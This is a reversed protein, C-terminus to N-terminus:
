YSLVPPSVMSVTRTLPRMGNAYVCSVNRAILGYLRDLRERNSRTKITSKFESIVAYADQVVKASVVVVEFRRLRFPIDVEGFNKGREVIFNNGVSAFRSLKSPINRFVQRTRVIYTGVLIVSLQGCRYLYFINTITTSFTSSSNLNTKVPVRSAVVLELPPLDRMSHLVAQTLLSVTRLTTSYRLKRDRDHAGRALPADFAGSLVYIRLGKTSRTVSLRRLSTAAQLGVTYTM